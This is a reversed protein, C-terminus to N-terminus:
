VVHVAECRRCRLRMKETRLALSAMRGCGCTIEFIGREATGRIKLPGRLNFGEGECTQCGLGRCKRCKIGDWTDRIGGFNMKGDIDLDFLASLDANTLVRM